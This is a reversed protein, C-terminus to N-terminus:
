QGLDWCMRLQAIIYFILSVFNNQYLHLIFDIILLNDSHHDSYPFFLAGEIYLCLIDWINM